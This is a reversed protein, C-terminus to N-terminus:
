TSCVFYNICHWIGLKSDSVNCSHSWVPRSGEVANAKAIRHTTPSIRCYSSKVDLRGRYYDWFYFLQHRMDARRVRTLQSPFSGSPDIPAARKVPKVQNLPYIRKGSPYWHHYSWLDAKRSFSQSNLAQHIMSSSSWVLSSIILGIM